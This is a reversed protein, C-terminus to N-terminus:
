GCLIGLLCPQTPPPAPPPPPPGPEDRRAGDLSVTHGAWDEHWLQHEPHEAALAAMTWAVLSQVTPETALGRVLAREVLFEVMFSRGYNTSEYALAGAPAAATLIRGPALLEDFGGGYCGAIVLWADRARLPAFRDALFWDAVWAGEATVLVETGGGLDRLHGAYFFVVTDEPGANAVLWDVAEIVSAVTARTDILELIQNGPVGLGALGAVVTRADAAAAALDYRDGLYDDIGVVVAWIREPHTALAPAPGPGPASVPLPPLLVPPPPPAPAPPPAVVVDLRAESLAEAPPGVGASPDVVDIPPPEVFEPTAPEPEPAPPAEPVPAPAPLPTAPAAAPAATTATTIPGPGTAVLETQTALGGAFPLAALGAVLVGAAVSALRREFGQRM